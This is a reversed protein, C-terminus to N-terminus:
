VPQALGRRATSYVQGYVKRYLDVYDSHSPLLDHAIRGNAFSARMMSENVMHPHPLKDPYVERMQVLFLQLYAQAKYAPDCDPITQMIYDVGDQAYTVAAAFSEHQVFLLSLEMTYQVRLGVLTTVTEPEEVLGSKCRRLTATFLRMARVYQHHVRDLDIDKCGKKSNRRIKECHRIVDPGIPPWRLMSTVVDQATDRDKGGKVECQAVRVLEKFPRLISKEREIGSEQNMKIELSVKLLYRGVGHHDLLRDLEAVRLYEIMTPIDKAVLGVQYHNTATMVMPACVHIVADLVHRCMKEADQQYVVPLNETACMLAVASNTLVKVFRNTDYFFAQSERSINRNVRFITTSLKYSKIGLHKTEIVQQESYGTTDKKVIKAYESSLLYRYIQNRIEGPLQEFRSLPNEAEYQSKDNSPFSTTNNILSPLSNSTLSLINKYVSSLTSRKVLIQPVELFASKAPELLSPCILM